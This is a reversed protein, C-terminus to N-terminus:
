VTGGSAPRSTGHHRYLWPLMHKQKEEFASIAEERTLTQGIEDLGEVLMRKHEATYDFPYVVGGQTRVEQAPLDITVPRAADGEAMLADVQDQPLVVTLIGNKVCNGAFIDAFSPGIIARYGMDRIAWPAHERSSGCGFNAGTLLIEATNYPARDFVAEGHLAGDAGYRLSEFAFRGLGTRKITKLHRAPVIIDTDVNVNPFPTAISTLTTFAQM